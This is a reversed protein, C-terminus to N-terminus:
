IHWMHGKYTSNEVLTHKRKSVHTMRSVEVHFPGKFNPNRMLLHRRFDEWCPVGGFLSKLYNLTGHTLQFHLAIEVVSEREEYRRGQIFPVGGIFTYKAKYIPRVHLM